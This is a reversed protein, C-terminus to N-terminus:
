EEDVFSILNKLKAFDFGYILSYADFEPNEESIYKREAICNAVEKIKEIASEILTDDLEDWIQICTSRTDKPALFYGASINDYKQSLAYVYLPLQVNRWFIDDKGVIHEEVVYKSTIKDATKYDLILYETEGSVVRKDIRDIRGVTKFGGINIEFDVEADEIEWGSARHMAQCSAIARLRQRLNEVQFRIQSRPNKGFSKDSIEDLSESLKKYIEKEDTSNAIDSKAFCEMVDHLLSGFQMADLEQKKSDYIDVGLVYNLYFIWPSNIYAKIASASLNGTYPKSPALLKWSTAFYPSQISEKASNFLMKVRHPLDSELMLISSPMAPYGDIQKQPVLISVARGERSRSAYITSLMYADRAKRMNFDRLGLLRRVSDNLLMVSSDALPVIGNNMDCLLLHPQETWFANMWDSLAVANEASDIKVEVSKMRSVCINAIEYAELNPNVSVLEEFVIKLLALADAEIGTIEDLSSSIINYFESIFVLTKKDSSIRSSLLLIEKLIDCLYTRRAYVNGFADKSKARSLIASIASNLDTPIVDAYVADIDKLVSILNKQPFFKKAFYRNSILAHADAFDSTQLIRVLSELLHRISTNALTKSSKIRAPINYSELKTKIVRACETQECAVSIIDSLRQSTYTQAYTQALKAVIQAEDAVTACVTISADPININKKLYEVKPVGYDDFYEKDSSPAFVCIEIDASSKNRNLFRRLLGSVEPCGILYIKKYGCDCDEIAKKFAEARTLAGLTHTKVFFKHELEALENWKDFFSSSQMRSAASSITLLNDSLANQLTIIKEAFASCDEKVPVTLPFLNPYDGDKLESLVGIWIAVAESDNLMRIGKLKEGLINEFTKFEIGAVGNCGGKSIRSYFEHRLLNAAKSTPTIVITNLIPPCVSLESSLRDILWKAASETFSCDIDLFHVM